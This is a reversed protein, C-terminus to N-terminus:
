TMIRQFIMDGAETRNEKIEMKTIPNEAARLSVAWIIVLLQEDPQTQGRDSM